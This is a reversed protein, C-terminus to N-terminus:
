AETKSDTYRNQPGDPQFNPLGSLSCIPNLSRENTFKRRQPTMTVEEKAPCFAQSFLWFSHTNICPLTWWGPWLMAMSAARGMSSAASCKVHHQALLLSLVLLQASSYRQPRDRVGKMCWSPGVNWPEVAKWFLVLLQPGFMWVCSGTPVNWFWAM